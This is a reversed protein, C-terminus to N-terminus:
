RPWRTSITSVSRASMSPRKPSARTSALVALVATVKSRLPPGGGDTGTGTGPESPVRGPASLTVPVPGMNAGVPASGTLSHGDHHTSM